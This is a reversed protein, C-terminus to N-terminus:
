STPVYKTAVLDEYKPSGTILGADKNIKIANEINERPVAVGYTKLNADLLQPILTADIKINKAVVGELETRNAPDLMWREAQVVANKFREVRDGHEKIYQDTAVFVNTSFNVVEKPGQGARFDVVMNAIKMQNLAITTGPEFASWVDIQKAQLAALATNVLGVAVITVDKDPNLGAERLMLKLQIEQTSGRATVGVRAGKLDKVVAPYEGAHPLPWDKAAVITSIGRKTDGAIIKMSQGKDSAQLVQDPTVVAVDASGTLLAQASEPGSSVPVLNVNLGQATFFGKDIAVYEPLSLISGPYATVSLGVPQASGGSSAGGSPSGSSSSSSSCASVVVMAVAAAAVSAYRWRLHTLRQLKFERKQKGFIATTLRSRAEGGLICVARLM